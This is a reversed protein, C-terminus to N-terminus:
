KKNWELVFGVSFDPQAIAALDPFAVLLASRFENVTAVVPFNTSRRIKLSSKKAADLM